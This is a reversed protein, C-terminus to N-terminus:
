GKYGKEAKFVISRMAMEITNFLDSKSQYNASHLNKVRGDEIFEWAQFKKKNNEPDYVAIANGNNKNMLSFCPIDTFGDGIYIMNALSVYLEEPSVKKNVEFPKNRFEEGFIGKSIQFLYRTKDTFSVVKKPALIEGDDDFSFESAFIDTFQKAIKTSRLLTGIGSSIVFFDISFDAAFKSLSTRVSAFLRTVGPFFEIDKGAKEITRQTIRKEVPQEKNFELIQHMYAPIPDWGDNLLKRNEIGWFEEIDVGQARLLTSTTDHALTDDFDFVMAIRKNM